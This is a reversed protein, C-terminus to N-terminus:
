RCCGELAKELEHMNLPKQLYGDFDASQFEDHFHWRAYSTLAVIPVRPRDLERELERIRHLAEFGNLEPMSLDMLILDVRLKKWKEVAENGNEVTIVHHGAKKLMREAVQISIYDDEAVLINLRGTVGQLAEPHHTHRQFPLEVVFTSGAGPSSECWIRGGMATVLRRCIPLGLGLGGYRRTNSMDSQVFLEFIQELKDAPIGVGTDTVRLDLLCGDDGQSLARCQLTVTGGDTFKVANSVLMHLIQRLRVRDGMVEIPLDSALEQLFQVGKQAAVLQHSQLVEDLCQRVSFPISVLPTDSCELHVLELLNNVLALENASTEDIMALYETQEDTLYTMQLLQVGGIIGNLPTRLEHSLNNLLNTKMRSSEEAMEKAKVLEEMARQREVMTWVDHMFIELHRVDDATYDTQKNGVGVVAVIRNNQMIPLNLHRVLAVHGEPCGKKWTNDAAYDNTIIAQRQRVAEGWLGTKDLEYTTQKKLVTCASLVEKSWAYLTLLRTEEDYLYIYGISSETFALAKELALDLLDTCSQPESRYLQLKSEQRESEKLVWAHHDAALQESKQAALRGAVQEALLTTLSVMHRVAREFHAPNVVPVSQLAELFRGVEFGNRLAESRYFELDPPEAFVQGILLAGIREGEVVLPEFADLLGHPCRRTQNNGTSIEPNQQLARNLRCRNAVGTRADYFQTCLLPRISSFLITGSLDVVAVSIGTLEHFSDLLRQLGEADLRESLLTKM